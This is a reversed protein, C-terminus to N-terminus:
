FADRFSGISPRKARTATSLMILECQNTQAQSVSGESWRRLTTGAEKGKKEDTDMQWAAAKYRVFAAPQVTDLDRMAEQDECSIHASFLSSSAPTPDVFALVGM